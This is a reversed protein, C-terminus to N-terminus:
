NKGGMPIIMPIGGDKTGPAKIGTNIEHKEKHLLNLVLRILYDVKDEMSSKGILSEAARGALYGLGSEVIHMMDLSPAENEKSEQIQILTNHLKKLQDNTQGSSETSNSHKLSPPEPSVFLDCEKKRRNCNKVRCSGSCFKRKSNKKVFTKECSPYLCVAIPYYSTPEM